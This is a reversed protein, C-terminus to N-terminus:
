RGGAKGFCGTQANTFEDPTIGMLRGTVKMMPETETVNMLSYLIVEEVSINKTYYHISWWGVFMYAIISPTM